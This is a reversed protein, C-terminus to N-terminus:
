KLIYWMYGAFIILMTAGELRDIMRGKRTFVFLFLLLTALVNILLDIDAGM